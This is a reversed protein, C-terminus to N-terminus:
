AVGPASPFSVRFTTGIENSSEVAVSANMREISERVITLGTGRGTGPKTTFGSEFIRPLVEPPIPNGTNRISCEIRPPEHKIEFQLRHPEPTARMAEIANKVINVFAHILARRDARIQDSRNGLDEIIEIGASQLRLHLLECAEHWCEALSVIEMKWQGDTGLLYRDLEEVTLNIYRSFSGIQQETQKALDNCPLLDTAPDVNEDALTKDIERIVRRKGAEDLSSRGLAKELAKPLVSFFVEVRYFLQRLNRGELSFAWLGNRLEHCMQHALDLTVQQSQLRAARERIRALNVFLAVILVAALVSALVVTFYYNRELRRLNPLSELGSGYFRYSVTLSGVEGEYTDILPVRLERWSTESVDLTPSDWSAFVDGSKDRIIVQRAATRVVFRDGENEILKGLSNVLQQCAPRRNGLLLDVITLGQSDTALRAWDRWIDGEVQEVTPPRISPLYVVGFVILAVVGLITALGPWGLEALWNRTRTRFLSPFRESM